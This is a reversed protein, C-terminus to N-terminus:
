VEGGARRPEAEGRMIYSVSRCFVYLAVIVGVAAGIFGLLYGWGLPVGLLITTEGYGFKDTMGVYLRWAIFSAAFLMMFDTIALIYSNARVSFYDTVLSVLAHGRELHTWPLFAFVAFGMGITVLEYDGYIPRLGVSILARGVISVVILVIMAILVIGGAVAMWKALGHVFRGLGSSDRFM